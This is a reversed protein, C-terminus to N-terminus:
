PDSGLIANITAEAARRVESDPDGLRVRLPGLAPSAEGGIFRLARSAQLRVLPSPDSLAVVLEPM